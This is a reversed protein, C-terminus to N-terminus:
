WGDALPSDDGLWDVRLSFEVSRIVKRTVQYGNLFGAMTLHSPHRFEILQVTSQSWIMWQGFQVAMEAATECADAFCKEALERDENDYWRCSSSVKSAVPWRVLYCVKSSM